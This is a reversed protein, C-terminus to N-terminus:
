RDPTNHFRLYSLFALLVFFILVSELLMFRSQVILSNEAFTCACQSDTFAACLNVALCGVSVLPGSRGVSKM